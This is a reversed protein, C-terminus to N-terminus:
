ASFWAEACPAFHEKTSDPCACCHRTDHRTSAASPRTSHVTRCGEISVRRRRAALHCRSEIRRASTSRRATSRRHRLQDFGCRRVANAFAAAPPGDGDLATTRSGDITRLRGAHSREVAQCPPELLGKTYPHKPAAFVDRRGRVRRGQRPVDGRRTPSRRSSASITRSSCCPMGRTDRLARLLDLIQAQITVDLATTPEDAILLKPNCSLAMAIMARQRM